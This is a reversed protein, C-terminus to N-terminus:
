AIFSATHSSNQCMSTGTYIFMLYFLNQDFDEVKIIITLHLQEKDRRLCFLMVSSHLGGGCILMLLYYSSFSKVYRRLKYVWILSAVKFSPKTDADNHQQTWCTATSKVKTVMWHNLDNPQTITNQYTCPHSWTSNKNVSLIYQRGTVICHLCICSCETTDGVLFM